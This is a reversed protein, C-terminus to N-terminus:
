IYQSLNNIKESNSQYIQNLEAKMNENDALISKFLGQINELTEPSIKLMNIGTAPQTLFDALALCTTNLIAHIFEQDQQNAMFIQLILVAMNETETADAPPFASIAKDVSEVQVQAGSVFLRLYM